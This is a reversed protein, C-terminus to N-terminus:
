GQLSDGRWRTKKFGPTQRNPTPRRSKKRKRGAENARWAMFITASFGRYEDFGGFKELSRRCFM